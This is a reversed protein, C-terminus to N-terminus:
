KEGGIGPLGVRRRGIDRIEGRIWRVIDAWEIPTELAPMPELDAVSTDALGKLAQLPFDRVHGFKEESRELIEALPLRQCLLFLDVFDRKSGRSIIAGLKMLALDVPSVVSIGRVEELSDILPYPYYFFRTAVPGIRLSLFGNRATEVTTEADAAIVHELLDRRESPTLRNGSSMFDVDRVPRHGIYLALAASGALYLDCSWNHRGFAELLELSKGDISSELTPTLAAV